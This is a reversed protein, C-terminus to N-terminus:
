SPSANENTNSCSPAGLESVADMESLDMESQDMESLTWKPCHGNRVTDMESLQGNRVTDMESLTWKPCHGNRVTDM